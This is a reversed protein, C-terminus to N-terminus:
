VSVVSANGPAPPQSASVPAPPQMQLLPAGPQSAAGDTRPRKAADAAGFSGRRKYQRSQEASKKRRAHKHKFYRVCLKCM